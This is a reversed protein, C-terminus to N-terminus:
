LYPNIYPTPTPSSYNLNIVSSRWDQEHYEYPLRLFDYKLSPKESHPPPAKRKLFM